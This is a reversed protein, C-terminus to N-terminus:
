FRCVNNAGWRSWTAGANSMQKAINTNVTPDKLRALCENYKAQDKVECSWQICVQRSNRRLCEGKSKGTTFIEGNANCISPASDIMNIQFLGVSFSNGDKCKDITSLLNPDGGSEIKCISSAKTANSGFTALQAVTGYKGAATVPTCTGGEGGLGIPENVGVKTFSLNIKTLDPNIVYFILYAGLAAVIGLLADWIIGQANSATSTNGASAMYMFGGVVLMFLGAIGVTWIGFKYIALVLKPFDTMETNATFFGPFSELLIYKFQRTTPAPAPATEEKPKTPYSHLRTDNPLVGQTDAGPTVLKAKDAEAAQKIADMAEQDTIAILRETKAQSSNLDGFFIGLCLLFFYISFKTKNKM